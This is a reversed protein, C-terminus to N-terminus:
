RDCKSAERIRAAERRRDGIKVQKGNRYISHSFRALFGDTLSRYLRAGIPWELSVYYEPYQRSIRLSVVRVGDRDKPWDELPIDVTRMCIANNGM